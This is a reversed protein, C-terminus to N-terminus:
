LHEVLIKVGLVVLVIGGVVMVRRDLVKGFRNGLFVGISAMIFTIIGIIIILVFISVDLFAFSMGIALADISTAVGLTVLLGTKLPNDNKIEEGGKLSDYVMKFGVLCLLGFAIWHDLDSILSKIGIGSLWGILPMMAQFFGFLVAIKLVGNLTLRKIVIGSALSVTFSDISLVLAIVIFAILDM